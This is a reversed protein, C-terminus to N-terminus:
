VHARGIQDMKDFAPVGGHPGSWKALLVNSDVAGSAEEFSTEKNQICGACVVALVSAAVCAARSVGARM